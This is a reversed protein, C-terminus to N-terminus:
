EAKVEIRGASFAEEKLPSLRAHEMRFETGHKLAHLVGFGERFILDCIISPFVCICTIRPNCKVHKLKQIGEDFMISRRHREQPPSRSFVADGPVDHFDSEVRLRKGLYHSRCSSRSFLARPFRELTESGIGHVTVHSSFLPRRGEASFPTRFCMMSILLCALAPSGALALILLRGDQRNFPGTM